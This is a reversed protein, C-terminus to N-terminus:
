TDWIRAFRLCFLSFRAFVRKSQWDTLAGGHKEPELTLLSTFTRTRERASQFARFLTWGAIPKRGMRGHRSSNNSPELCPPIKARPSNLAAFRFGRGM